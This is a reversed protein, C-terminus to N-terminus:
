YGPNASSVLWKRRWPEPVKYLHYLQGCMEFSDVHDLKKMQKPFRIAYEQHLGNYDTLLLHTLGLNRFVREGISNHWGNHQIRVARHTTEMTLAHVSLGGVIMHPKDMIRRNAADITHRRHKWWRAHASLNGFLFHVVFLVVFLSLLWRPPQLLPRRMVRLSLLLLCWILLAAITCAALSDWEGPFLQWELREIKNRIWDFRYLSMRLILTLTLVASLHAAWARQFFRQIKGQEYFENLGLVTLGLLPPILPAAFRTPKYALVGVFLAGLLCYAAMAVALPTVRRWDVTLRYLTVGGMILAILHAFDHRDIRQFLNDAILHNFAAALSEPRASTWWVGGLRSIEAHNEIRFLFLWPLFVALTGLLYWGFLVLQRKLDRSECWQRGLAAVVGFGLAPVAYFITGKIVFIMFGAAGCVFARITTLPAALSAFAILTFFIGANELLALRGLQAFIYHSGFLTLALLGALRGFHQFCLWSLAVALISWAAGFAHMTDITIGFVSFWAIQLLVWVPSYVYTNWDDPHMDGFLVYSRANGSHSFPDFLVGASPSLHFAPDADLDGFRAFIAWALAIVLLTPYILRPLSERQINM